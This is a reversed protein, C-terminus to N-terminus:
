KLEMYIKFIEDKLKSKTINPSECKEILTLMKKKIERHKDLLEDFLITTDKM